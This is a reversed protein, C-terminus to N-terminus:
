LHQLICQEAAKHAFDKSVEYHRSIYMALIEPYSSNKSLTSSALHKLARIAYPNPSNDEKIKNVLEEVTKYNGM